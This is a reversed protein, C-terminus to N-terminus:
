SVARIDKKIYIVYSATVALLVFILEIVLFKLEYGGHIVIYSADYFKFPSIYKVTDNGIISGLTGIIFFSFVTPLSVAIVSKVRPIIVSLLLGLALFMLQVLLMGAAILLFIRSSFAATSVFKAALLAVCGFILNTLLLLCTAALLKASVVKQRSVPKSLLFDVTKGSTERSLLGVGLNMAQVAASVSAFTLLYAFFGYVTFFNSLSIGLAIRLALPLHLLIAQTATADKSFATFMLMFVFALASLAVAWIFTSRRYSKLERWFINM